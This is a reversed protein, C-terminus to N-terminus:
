GAIHQWQYRLTVTENAPITLRFIPRGNKTGLPHDARVVRGGEPLRLRLEFHIEAARANSVDVHNIGEVKASRLTPVGPVLPLLGARASDIRTRENVATVQVDPSV